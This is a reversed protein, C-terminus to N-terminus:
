CLLLFSVRLWPISFPSTDSYWQGRTQSTQFKSYSLHCNKNKNALRVLGFWDFLLDITCHYKGKLIGQFFMRLFPLIIFLLMHSPSFTPWGDYSLKTLHSISFFNPQTVKQTLKVPHRQLYLISANQIFLITALVNLLNVSLRNDNMWIPKNVVSLISQLM